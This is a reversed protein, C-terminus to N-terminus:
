RSWESIQPGTEFFISPLLYYRKSLWPLAAGVMRRRLAPVLMSSAVLGAIGLNRRTRRALLGVLFLAGVGGALYSRQRRRGRRLQRVIRAVFRARRWIVKPASLMAALFRRLEALELPPFERNGQWRREHQQLREMLQMAAMIHTQWEASHGATVAIALRLMTQQIVHAVAMLDAFYSVSQSLRDTKGVLTTILTAHAEARQAAEHGLRLTTEPDTIATALYMWILLSATPRMWWIWLLTPLYIPGLSPTSHAFRGLYWGHEMIAESDRYFAAIAEGLEVGYRSCCWALICEATGCAPNQALAATVMSNLETWISWIGTGIASSGGGWGGTSNWAWIGAIQPQRIAHQIVDHHLREVSSPVMGFLEYERRNQLEIIQRPGPMGLTPNNPLHRFFDIPGHKISTLLYPSDYDAFVARYRSQSWILDGLEGIGISWTRVILQRQYAECIPLLIDILSRLAVTNTYLMHGQYGHHDHAGGAEGIRVVVGSVQPFSTFLEHFAWRNALQVRENDATIRGVFRRLAATSWQLDATIYVQMDLNQAYDFLKTFATGYRRARQYEPDQATYITEATDCFTILHALNDIVIGTYGQVRIQDLYQIARQIGQALQNEAVYPPISLDLQYYPLSSWNRFPKTTDYFPGAIDALRLQM